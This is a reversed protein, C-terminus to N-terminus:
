PDFMWIVASILVSVLLLIAFVIPIPEPLWLSTWIYSFFLAIPLLFILSSFGLFMRVLLNNM